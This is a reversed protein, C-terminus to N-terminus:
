KISLKLSNNTLLQKWKRFPKFYLNKLLFLQTSAISAVIISWAVSKQDAVFQKIIAKPVPDNSNDDSKLRGDIVLRAFASASCDIDSNYCVGLVKKGTLVAQTSFLWQECNASGDLIIISRQRPTALSM